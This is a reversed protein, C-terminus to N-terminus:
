VTVSCGAGAFAGRMTGPLPLAFVFTPVSAVHVNGGDGSINKGYSPWNLQCGQLMILSIISSLASFLFFKMARM